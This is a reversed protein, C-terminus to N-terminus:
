GKSLTVSAAFSRLSRLDVWLLASCTGRCDDRPNPHGASGGLSHVPEVSRGCLICTSVQQRDNCTGGFWGDGFWCWWVWWWGQGVWVWWFFFWFFLFFVMSFGPKSGPVERMCLPRDASQDLGGFRADTMACCCFICPSTKSRHPKPTFVCAGKRSHARKRQQRLINQLDGRM